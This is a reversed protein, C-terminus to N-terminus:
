MATKRSGLRMAEKTLALNQIFWFVCAFAAHTNKRIRFRRGPM